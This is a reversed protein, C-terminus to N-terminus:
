GWASVASVPPRRTGARTFATFLRSKNEPAIGPGADRVTSGVGARELAVVARGSWRHGVTEIANGILNLLVQQIKAGDVRLMRTADVTNGTELQLSVQKRTALLRVMPEVGAVIATVSIPARELRLAGSEIISVDLFNDILRKMGSAAVLCTQLFGRQEESLTAEDLVFEGYTMILGIPKRLDHAAMGLFRNKLQNLERLDANALHLQRTLDNLERNLALVDARLRMQEDFDMSGLVLWGEPLCLFRFRYSEPASSPTNMALLHGNARTAEPGALDPLPTFAVM